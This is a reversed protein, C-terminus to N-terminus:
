TTSIFFDLLSFIVNKVNFHADNVLKNRETLEWHTRDLAERFDGERIAYLMYVYLLSSKIRKMEHQSKNVNEVRLTSIYDSVCDSGVVNDVYVLLHKERMVGAHNEENETQASLFIDWCNLGFQRFSLM